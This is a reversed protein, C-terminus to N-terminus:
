PLMKCLIVEKLVRYNCQIVQFGTSFIFSMTDQASAASPNLYNLHNNDRLGIGIGGLAQNRGFGKKSYRRNRFTFITFIYKDPGAPRNNFIDASLILLISKSKISM